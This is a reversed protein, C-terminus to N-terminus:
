KNLYYDEKEKMLRVQKVTRDDYGLLHLCGHIIVRRMEEKFSTNYENLNKKVQGPSIFIEGDILRDGDSYPFTIIDTIYDHNLYNKNIKQIDKGSIFNFILTYNKKGEAKFVLNVLKSISIKTLPLRHSRCYNNM